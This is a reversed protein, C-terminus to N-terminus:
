VLIKNLLPRAKCMAELPEAKQMTVGGGELMDEEKDSVREWEFCQILSGLALGVVRQALGAGPCARRGLGFPMLKNAEGEKDFREPKFSMADDWLTPDRQIAWANVLLMTGRPVEYGGVTCDESSMHPVLLPVTPYLRLTESVINQLYPLKPLDPEDLLSNEGILNEIEDRAKRVANPHNLLNAMAWELTVASTHTGAFLIVQILGKIVEDTYYEPESEQLSLLHKIMTNTNQLNGKSNRHEDILGVYFEDCRKAIRIMGKEFAGGDIWNYIPLFDGPNTVDGYAFAEKMIKRFERAEEEDSVDDGYYRKGAIMRIMINFTLELFRSRLEVKSFDQMCNHSLNIILRKIEDKRISLLINLRHNSFIEIAGIRRLNRWHDGYPALVMTTSDYGFHKGVLLRPRNAFIIDNKTFCEEAASLSTVIIVPRSGFRLLFVPGYKKALTLLTRHAPNKLLHFHGIIPFSPPSPPLNKGHKKSQYLKLTLFLLLFSSFFYLTTYHEM